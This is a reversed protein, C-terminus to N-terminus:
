VRKNICYICGQDPCTVSGTLIMSLSMKEMETFEVINKLWCSVVYIRKNMVAIGFSSNCHVMGPVDHWTDTEPDYAEASRLNISDNRGGVAFIHGMYAVVGLEYRPTRMPAIRTWQNTDPNYCNPLRCCFLTNNIGPESRLLLPKSM